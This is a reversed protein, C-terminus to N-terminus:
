DHHCPLFPRWVQNEIYICHEAQMIMEIYANQISHETLIGLSWDASSRLVQVKATGATAPASGESAIFETRHHAHFPHKFREGQKAMKVLHPHGELFAFQPDVLEPSEDAGVPLAIYPMRKESKYKFTKLFSWRQIFHSAVDLVAPGHIMVHVDHWPMRGIVARSQNNSLYDKVNHFDEIRANNYDQGVFLTRNYDTLHVDSLPHSHTDWRGDCIDLGGVCAWTNDVVVLKEHHSWMLTVEGGLHDPHRYVQINPHLDELYHKTWSSSMTMTQTVEKYVVIFIRVGQEAKRKLIRDLRYSEFLHAPRRLYLEPTLWWDLIFVHSQAKDLIESLAWFYDCGDSYWKVANGDRKPAFSRMRHSACVAERQADLEQEWAEDHRHNPNITSHVSVALREFNARIESPNTINKKILHGIGM